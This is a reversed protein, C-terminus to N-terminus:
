NLTSPRGEGSVTGSLSINETRYIEITNDDILSDPSVVFVTPISDIFVRGNSVSAPLSIEDYFDGFLLTFKAICEGKPSEDM